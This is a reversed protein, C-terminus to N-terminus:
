RGGASDRGGTPTPKRETVQRVILVPRSTLSLLERSTSGLVASKLKGIGRSGVVIIDAGIEDALAAIQKPPHGILLQATAQVDNARALELADALAPDEEPRPLRGASVDREDWEPTLDVISLVNVFVAHAGEGQALDIGSDVAARASDSGDTAILILKM